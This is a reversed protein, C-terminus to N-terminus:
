RKAHARAALAKAKALDPHEIPYLHGNVYGPVGARCTTTPSRGGAGSRDSGLAHRDIAYNVAQRLKRNNKFLPRSTNM